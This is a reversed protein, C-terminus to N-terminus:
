LDYRNSGGMRIDLSCHSSYAHPSVDIVAVFNSLYVHCDSVKPLAAVILRGVYCRTQVLV